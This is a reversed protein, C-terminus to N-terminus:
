LRRERERREGADAAMRSSTRLEDAAGGSGGGREAEGGAVGTALEAPADDGGACVFAALM